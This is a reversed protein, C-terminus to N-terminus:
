EREGKKRGEGKGEKRGGKRGDEKKYLSREEKRGEKGTWWSDVVQDADLVTLSEERAKERDDSFHCAGGLGGWCM